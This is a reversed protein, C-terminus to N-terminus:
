NLVVGGSLSHLTVSYNEGQLMQYQKAFLKYRTKAEKYLGQKCYAGIIIRLSKENLPDLNFSANAMAIAKTYKEEEYWVEAQRSLTPELQAEVLAKFHDFLPIDLSKLFAGQSVIECLREYQEEVPNGALIEMCQLYDCYCPEQLILRFVNKEYVLSIGDLEALIKRLHNLTVGRINKVKNETKDPWLQESLEQSTIGESLSYEFILIFAQKLKPSFLYNIERNHRDRVSFNGFLYISNPCNHLNDVIEREGEPLEPEENDIQDESRNKRKIFIYISVVALLAVIVIVGVLMIWFFLSSTDDVEMQEKTIPPFSLSYINSVSAQDQNDFELTVAYLENRNANYYLNANTAIKDSRMPISDGYVQYSGDSISFRYLCLYSQSYHEPYFLTYFTSDGPLIMNRVPVMNAQNWKIEWMKKLYNTNLDLKYLDYYYRREIAQDGSENGMGGFIYLSNSSPEYGMSTFYRPDIHDGTYKIESWKGTAVNMAYFRNSFRHNGFGGFIIYQRNTEDYFASHHHLQTPLVDYSLPTWQNNHWDYWASAYGSFPPDYVEYAYLREQGTDVFSTGLRFKMPCPAAYEKTNSTGNTTNYTTIQKDNFYYIEQNHVNFMAGAVENSEFTVKHRWFYADNIMWVPCVVEGIHSGESDHVENGKNENLPFLFTTKDDKVSLNRIGFSPIDIIYESRGFYMVPKWSQEAFNLDPCTSSEKNVKLTVDNKVLNFLIQVQQWRRRNFEEKNLHLTVLNQKGEENLKFIVDQEESNFSLTYILNQKENKIRLVNGRMSTEPAAYDFAIDLRDKFTHSKYAFVNYSTRNEISNEDRQFKLGQACLHNSLFLVGICVIVTLYIQRNWM